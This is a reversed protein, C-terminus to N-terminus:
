QQKIECLGVTGDSSTFLCRNKSLPVVTSILSNGVKYKWLLKGSKAEVAFLLGSRTSGFVVGEKEVPM